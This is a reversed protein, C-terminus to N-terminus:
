RTGAATERRRVPPPSGPESRRELSRATEANLEAGLLLAIAALWLWTLMVIVAALSGWTKDYSGFSSTYVAFLGSVALWVVTALVSGPTLFHWRRRPADPGLHLVTSFAALMGVILIPWEAIWWIWAVAGSARGAHDAVLTELSPGFILLVAVLLFAFGIAAVMELAVLRKKLFNRKDKQEYALNIATMYSSMAGTTAWLAILGGIVTMAIGTAPRRDLRHLSSGLLSTAEAPMVHRFHAMLTTITDPGAVLTFLGVALLLVAPIAFFTSYALASALMTGNDDRFEKVSRMFVTRWDRLSLDRLRPDCVRSESHEPEPTLPAEDPMPRESM